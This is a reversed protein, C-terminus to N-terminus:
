EGKTAPVRRRVKKTFKQGCRCLYIRHIGTPKGPWANAEKPYIVRSYVETADRCKCFPCKPKVNTAM